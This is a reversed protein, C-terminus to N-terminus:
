AIKGVIEELIDETTVLGVVEGNSNRVLSMPQRFRRLKPFIDDVAMDESIFLPAWVFSGISKNMDSSGVALVSFVNVIGTFCNSARDFVPMRTLKTKRALEFFQRVTMDSELCIMESRPVMIDKARKKSLEFVGDIMVREKRSLAGHQESERALIRLEDRTIFIDMGSLRGIASPVIWHTLWLMLWSIPMLVKESVKLMGVFHKTREYPKSHFWAKPLFECFILVLVSMVATSVAHGGPGIWRVTIGAAVVSIVVICINTGVLTTGLLRDTNDLFWQLIRAPKLGQKVFYRLRIRHISIIGTEMGSFFAAGLMCLFIVTIEIQFM